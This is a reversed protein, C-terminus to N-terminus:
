KLEYFTGKREGKRVLIDNKVLDELERLITRESLDLLQQLENNTIKGNAKVYEVATIQRENLGL